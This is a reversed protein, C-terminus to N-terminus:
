NYGPNQKLYVVGTANEADIQVQPIAFYENVGKTFVATNQIYYFSYRTKEKQVYNNLVEAMYGTGNDWRQLDFFRHGEMALELRREFRVAMRAYEQGKSAFAGAPYPMIFYNAAPTTQPSYTGTTASYQANAYVWGTKDAARNRVMNVYEEAKDLSGVEIECEAAWLLVDAYRIINYNNATIQTAGWFVTETSSYTGAQSKAYVNKKPNFRGNSTPDRIWATTHVGWDLYPIGPRGINWDIRPDLTGAYANATDSVLTGDNFSGDLLPLGNADTKYANALNWSPNNFGCCGGPAGAGNPYNLVDGMNGNGGDNATASGDNVSMQCAFVSEPGNKQTANFNSEYNVLAYKVGQATVGSAIVQDLLMKASDYKHQFMCAKALLAMAAWKNVRGANPQTEPLNNVAFQLDADIYPWIDADNPVALNDYIFSISEDVYPFKNFIKKGDFHYYARLFRAEGAINATDTAPIDTALRMNRLVDNARQIGTYLVTWKQNVYATVGQALSWTEVSTADPQDSPVSGKYSDDAAISGYVWNSGASGYANGAGPLNEGDLLAYAGILLRDVGTKNAVNAPLLYGQPQKNLDKNCASIVIAAFVVLVAVATIIKYQSKKM